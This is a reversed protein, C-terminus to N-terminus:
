GSFVREEAHVIVDRTAPPTTMIEILRAATPIGSATCRRMAEDLDFPTSRLQVGPGLLAWYATGPQGDHYALGVSGPNVMRLEGVVRDYQMHSHGHVLVKEPCLAAVDAVREQPTGPTLLEEDSRPSGHCFRVRGLGDIDVAATFWMGALFEVAEAPHAALMWADRAALDPQEQRVGEAALELVARDANGRVYTARQGLPRVIDLTEVPDPGWTLDGAFVVLDPEAAAVEDLVARLASVNAHVDSLVAVRAASRVAAAGASRPPLSRPDPSMM